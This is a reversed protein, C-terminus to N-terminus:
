KEVCFGGSGFGSLNPCDVSSKNQIARYTVYALLDERKKYYISQVDIIEGAERVKKAMLKDLPLDNSEVAYVHPFDLEVICQGFNFLNQYIYSDYFPIVTYVHHIYERATKLDIRPLGGFNGRTAALSYMKMLGEKYGNGSRAFFIMKHETSISEPSKDDMDQCVTLKLGYVLKLGCETANKLAQPFSSPNKEVLYVTDLNKEKAITFISDSGGEKEKFPKDITLISNFSNASSFFYIM